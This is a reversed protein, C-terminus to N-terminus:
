SGVIWIIYLENMYCDIMPGGVDLVLQRGYERSRFDPCDVAAPQQDSTLAQSRLSAERIRVDNSLEINRVTIAKLSKKGLSTSNRIHPQLLKSIKICCVLLVTILRPEIMTSSINHRQGKAHTKNTGQGGQWPCVQRSVREVTGHRPTIQPPASCVATLVCLVCV